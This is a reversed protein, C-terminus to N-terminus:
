GTPEPEEEVSKASIATAAASTPDANAAAKFQVEVVQGAQLASHNADQDDLEVKTKEGVQFVKEQPLPNAHPRAAENAETVNVTISTIEGTDDASM